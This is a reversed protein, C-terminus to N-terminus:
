RPAGKPIGGRLSARWRNRSSRRKRYQGIVDRAEIALREVMRPAAAIPFQRQYGLNELLHGARWEFLEIERAPLKNQWAEIKSPDPPGGFDPHTQRHHAPLVLGGGASFQLGDSGLFAAIRASTRDFDRVVDEYRITLMREPRVVLAAALGLGVAKAWYDAARLGTAPGWDQSFLSNAVARGDRIIHIFYADPFSRVLEAAHRLNPPSQDIWGEIRPKGAQRAYRACFRDFFAEYTPAEAVDSWDESTLKFPAIRYRAHNRVLAALRDAAFGSRAFEGAWEAIFHTEPLCLLEVASGLVDGLFTTGSRPCGGIFIQKM